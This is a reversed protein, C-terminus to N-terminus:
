TLILSDHNSKKLEKLIKYFVDKLLKWQSNCNAPDLMEVAEAPLQKTSVLLDIETSLSWYVLPIVINKGNESYCFMGLLQKLQEESFEEIGSIEWYKNPFVCSMFARLIVMKDNGLQIDHAFQVAGKCKKSCGKDCYEICVNDIYWNKGLDANGTATVVLEFHELLRNQATFVLKCTCVSFHMAPFNVFYNKGYNIHYRRAVLIVKENPSSPKKGEYNRVPGTPLALSESM